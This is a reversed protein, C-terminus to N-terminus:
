PKAQACAVVWTPRFPYDQFESSAVEASGKGKYVLLLGHNPLEGAVWKRVLPTLDLAVWRRREVAKPEGTAPFGGVDVCAAVEGFRDTEPDDCGGKGWMVNKPNPHAPNGGYRAGYWSAGLGEVSTENWERRVAYAEIKDGASSQAFPARLLTIRLQAGLVRADKPLANLDVAILARAPANMGAVNGLKLTPENGYNAIRSDWHATSATVYTDRVAADRVAEEPFGKHKAVDGPARRLWAWEAGPTSVSEKLALYAPDALPKGYEPNEVEVPFFFEAPGGVHEARAM